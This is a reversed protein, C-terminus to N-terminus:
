EDHRTGRFDMETEQTGKWAHCAVCLVQLNELDYRQEPFKSWPKIHDVDMAGTMGCRMCARGYRKFVKNRLKQWVQKHEINTISILVDHCKVLHGHNLALRIEDTRLWTVFRGTPYTCKSECRCPFEQRVTGSVREWNHQGEGSRNGARRVIRNQIRQISEREETSLYKAIKKKSVGSNCAALFEDFKRWAEREKSSKLNQTVADAIKRKVRYESGKSVNRYESPRCPYIAEDTNLEVKAVIYFRDEPSLRYLRPGPLSWDFLLRLDEITVSAVRHHFSRWM